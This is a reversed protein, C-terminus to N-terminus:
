DKLHRAIEAVIDGHQKDAHEADAPLLGALMLADVIESSQDGMGRADEGLSWGTRSDYIAMVGTDDNVDIAQPADTYGEWTRVGACGRMCDVVDRLGDLYGSTSCGDEFWQRSWVLDGNGDYIEVATMGASREGILRAQM